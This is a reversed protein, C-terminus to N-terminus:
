ARLVGKLVITKEQTMEEISVSIGERGLGSMKYGGFAMEIPRYFGSGNVVVGGSNIQSAIRIAKNIDCSMVGGMLGYISSNVIEVAEDESDFGIIPFVPGFIEMDRAVDMDSTVDTLVTPYLFTRNFRKNGYLCKAGQGITLDIQKEVEIAAKENIMCSLDTEPDFPDGIKVKKLKDILKETFEKKVKNHVLFRKPSDCIQGTNRIRGWYAEEVALDVDADELVVFADNGGLELFMRVLHKAGIEAIHVGIETSGTFNVADIGGSGVLCDGIAAGKGTIIQAAEKPVGCELLLETMRVLVMPNDTPPKIIVANGAALAAAVKFAYLKIPQNFPVICAVVGLPERVTFSIDNDYGKESNPLTKGYIHNAKEAYGRFAFSASDVDVKCRHFQRGMERCLIQSLEEKHELLVDSYRMLIRTREYLPTKGWIKRGVQAIRIAETIDEETACPITDIFEQTAPNIVDITRGDRSDRKEGNIIMKM